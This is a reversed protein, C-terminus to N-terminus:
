ESYCNESFDWCVLTEDGEGMERITQTPRDVIWRSGNCRSKASFSGTQFEYTDFDSKGELIDLALKVALPKSFENDPSSSYPTLIKSIQTKNLKATRHMYKRLIGRTITQM